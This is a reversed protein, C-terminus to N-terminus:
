FKYITNLIFYGIRYNNINQIIIKGDSFTNIATRNNRNLNFLNFLSKGIVAFSLKDSKNFKFLLNCDPIQIRSDPLKYITNEIVIKCETKNKIAQLSFYFNLSSQKNVQTSNLKIKQNEWKSGIAIEKIYFSQPTFSIESSGTFKCNKYKQPVDNIVTPMKEISYSLNATIRIQHNKPGYYFGKSGGANISGTEKNNLIHNIFYYINNITTDFIPQIYNKAREYVLETHISRSKAVNTNYYGM